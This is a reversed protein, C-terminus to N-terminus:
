VARDGMGGRGALAIAAAALLGLWAAPEIEVGGGGPPDALRVTILLVALLAVPLTMTSGVVPLGSADGRLAFIATLVACAIAVAVVVDVFGFSEWLDATGAGTDFWPLFAIALLGLGACGGLVASRRPASLM